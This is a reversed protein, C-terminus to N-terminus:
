LVISKHLKFYSRTILYKEIDLIIYLNIEMYYPPSMADIFLQKGLMLVKGTQIKILRKMKKM